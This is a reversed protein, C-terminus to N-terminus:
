QRARTVAHELAAAPDSGTVDIRHGDVMVTPTVTVQHSAGVDSVYNVWPAYRAEEVCRAFANGTIGAARGAAVLQAASLGPGQEAPQREFLVASYQEFKGQDAACAAAAAARTSYGKPRSHDDLFAVPHFVVSANGGAALAQQESALALETRRCEPCLYDLYLDVRVKGTSITLGAKDPSAGAPRHSPAPGPAQNNARVVGAGILAAAVVVIGAVASVLLTRRRRYRKHMMERVMTDTSQM